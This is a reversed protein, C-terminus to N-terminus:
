RCRGRGVVQASLIERVCCVVSGQFVQVPPVGIDSQQKNNLEAGVNGGLQDQCQPRPVWM